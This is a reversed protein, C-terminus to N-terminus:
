LSRLATAPSRGPVVVWARWRGCRYHSLVYSFTAPRPLSPHSCQSRGRPVRDVGHGEREHSHKCSSPACNIVTCRRLRFMRTERRPGDTWGWRRPFGVACVFASSRPPLKAGGNTSCLRSPCRLGYRSCAVLCTAVMVHRTSVAPRFISFSFSRPSM